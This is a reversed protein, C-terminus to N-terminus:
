FKVKAGVRIQYLSPRGVLNINPSAVASYRYQACTQSSSTNATAFTGGAPNASGPASGTPVAGALCQVNVATAAQPFGVQRLAGWDSDIMNLLNDVDAFLKIKAKGVFLPVEQEVHLDVKFFDPSTNTNKPVIRGRFKELGFNSVLNNFATESAATDFSVRTDGTTPVFLLYRNNNGTTGFVASRGSTLDRMTLSYPRGSRYEGFLSIRTRNDGFFDRKFDISFKWSDKIEYISRGLAAHNPDVFANNSYLSSATTSTVGNVDTIDQRTYSGDISLGFDWEKSMRFVGILSRGAKSNTLLLDQNTTATGGIPGYRRRGDPLTGIAVSRLDTYDVGNVNAGYLFDAGFLWGEGLPGLDADYNVSLTGRLQSPLKYDPDIANVPAAALSATNTLLFNRVEAGFTKGDVGVLAQNCLALAQAAPLTSPADCGAASSNRRLTISNTLQGTNSFSNSLFVDPTGGAFIGVGGRVILRDTTKWNFGVRPQFVGRGNFTETNPFGNRALFNPNLPPREGNAYLDYRAGVNIQLTDTIDWDDQLGFTYSQTSFLAAADAPDGSPVAGALTLTSARRNQFDTISDFYYQGRSSPLFLNTVSSDTYGAVLKLSHRGLDLKATLDISLNETNLANSHRFIDPGFFIRPVGNTCSTVSGGVPNTVDACVASESFNIDGFPIQGRNYDRYSARVETSFNDSWTSNLQFVGSNVEESLEYGTTFLGITPSTTSTSTNRQNGVTGVNRIYTISARHDDSINWDLKASFKEDSEVANRIVGLTDYNYVTKAIGSVTDIQAQTLNPIPAAFGQGQPGSDFPNAEDLKEYAFAFFLKDKIIPGSIFGGYQKSSFDLNIPVGRAKSGTLNDSSYTYFASGSFKNAGSRLVVNIAGGQFDGESIDFPAVKVALQEIADYPVPGRATPLGGNNLGFDDSFQVGDVSFKNLRGNQGAIEIARSNSLDITVFPDRRAVDRIDRTISAVGEIAERDLATIPGTSVETAQSKSATVIIESSAALDIPLRLPTGATLFIDTVRSSEYGDATVTVTFPGGIRLGNANFGGNADTTATATTGSPEHVISVDAGAVAKGESMVAGRVASSTEQAYASVPVILAALAAGAFFQHRMIFDGSLRIPEVWAM